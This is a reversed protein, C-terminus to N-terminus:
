YRFDDRNRKVEGNTLLCQMVDSNEKNQESMLESICMKLACNEASCAKKESIIKLIEEQIHELKLHLRHCQRDAEEHCWASENTQVEVGVMEASSKYHEFVDSSQCSM